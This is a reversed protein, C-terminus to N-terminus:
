VSSGTKEFKKFISVVYVPLIIIIIIYLVDIYMTFSNVHGAQHPKTLGAPM